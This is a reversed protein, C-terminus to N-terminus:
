RIMNLIEDQEKIGAAALAESASCKRCVNKGDIRSQAPPYSFKEGCTTCVYSIEDVSPILAIGSEKIHLQGVDDVFDVTFEGETLYDDKPIAYIRTGHPYRNRVREADEKYIDM